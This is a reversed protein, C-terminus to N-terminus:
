QVEVHKLHYRYSCSSCAGAIDLAECTSTIEEQIEQTIETDLDDEYDDRISHCAWALAKARTSFLKFDDFERDSNSLYQWSLAWVRMPGSLAATVANVREVDSQLSASM